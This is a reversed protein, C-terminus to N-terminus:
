FSGSLGRRVRNLAKGLRFLVRESFSEHGTSHRQVGFAGGRWLMFVVFVCFGLFDLWGNSYLTGRSWKGGVIIITAIIFTTADFEFM